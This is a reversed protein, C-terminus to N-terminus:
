AGEEKVFQTTIENIYGLLMDLRKGKALNKNWPLADAELAACVVRAADARAAQWQIRDGVSTPVSVPASVSVAPATPSPVDEGEKDRVTSPDVKNNREEFSVFQGETQKIQDKGTSFWRDVGELQFAYLMINHWPKERKKSIKGQWETM